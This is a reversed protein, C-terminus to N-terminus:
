YNTWTPAEHEYYPSYAVRKSPKYFIGYIVIILGVIIVAISVIRFIQLFMLESTKRRFEKLEKLVVKKRDLVSNGSLLEVVVVESSKRGLLPVEVFIQEGAKIYVKVTQELDEAFVRLYFYGSTSSNNEITVEIGAPVKSVNVIKGYLEPRLAFKIRPLKVYFIYYDPAQLENYNVWLLSSKTEKLPGHASVPLWTYNVLTAGKSFEVSLIDIWSRPDRHTYSDRITIEYLNEDIKRIFESTNLYILVEIIYAGKMKSLKGTNGVDCLVIINDNKSFEILVKYKITDPSNAFMLLIEEVIQRSSAKLNEEIRRDGYLSKGESTFPHLKAKVITTGDGSINVEFNLAIWYREEQSKVEALLALTLLIVIFLVIKRM